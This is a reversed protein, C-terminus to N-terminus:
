HKSRMIFLFLFPVDNHFMVSELQIAASASTVQQFLALNREVAEADSLIRTPVIPASSQLTHFDSTPEIPRAVIMRVYTGAQRLVQAVQESGMGRLNVENIQLIHDGVQLRGDQTNAM